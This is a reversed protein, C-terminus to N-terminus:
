DEAHISEELKNLAQEIRKNLEETPKVLEDHLAPFQLRLTGLMDTVFLLAGTTQIVADELASVKKQLKRLREEDTM